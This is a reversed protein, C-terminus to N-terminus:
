HEKTVQAETNPDVWKWNRGPAVKLPEFYFPYKNAQASFVLEPKKVLDKLKDLIKIAKDQVKTLLRYLVKKFFWYSIKMKLPTPGYKCLYYFFERNDATDPMYHISQTIAPFYENKFVSRHETLNENIHEIFSAIDLWQEKSLWQEKQAPDPFTARFRLDLGTARPQNVREQLSKLIAVETADLSFRDKKYKLCLAKLDIPM